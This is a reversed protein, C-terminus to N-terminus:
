SPQEKDGPAGAKKMIDCFGKERFLLNAYYTNRM